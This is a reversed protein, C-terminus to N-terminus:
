TGYSQRTSQGLVCSTKLLLVNSRTKWPLCKERSIFLTWLYVLELKFNPKSKFSTPRFYQCWNAKYKYSKPSSFYRIKGHILRVGRNIVMKTPFNHLLTAGINTNKKCPQHLQAILDTNDDGSKWSQYDTREVSGGGGDQPQQRIIGCFNLSLGVWQQFLIGLWNLHIAKMFKLLNIELHFWRNSTAKSWCSCRDYFIFHSGIM